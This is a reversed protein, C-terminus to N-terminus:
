IRFNVKFLCFLEPLERLEFLYVIRFIGLKWKEVVLDFDVTYICKDIVWRGIFYVRNKFFRIRSGYFFSWFNWRKGNKNRSNIPRKRRM